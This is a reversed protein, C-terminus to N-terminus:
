KKLLFLIKCNVIAYAFLGAPIFFMNAVCHEFGCAIFLLIPPWLASIKSFLDKMVNLQNVSTDKHFQEFSKVLIPVKLKDM